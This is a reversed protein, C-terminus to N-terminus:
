ALSMPPQDDPADSSQAQDDPGDRPPPRMPRKGSGEDLVYGHDTKLHHHPSCLRDLKKVQTRHSQAWPVRHDTELYGDASCGAVCCERDRWQLVTQQLAKPSRGLHVALSVDEGRSVVAAVFADGAIMERARRVPIPGVGAVECTEGPLTHGRTLASHDVRVIVKADRDRHRQDELAGDAAADGVADSTGRRAAPRVPDGSVAAVLADVMLAENPVEKGHRNADRALRRFWPRLGAMLRAGDDATTSLQATFAGLHGRHHRFHRRRRVEAYREDADTRAAAELRDAERALEALSRRSAAMALLQAEAGADALAARGVHGAQALSLAGIRLAAATAPLRDAAAAASLDDDARRVSTGSRRALWHAPTRDGEMRWADSHAVRQAALVRCAGALRELEAFADVLREAQDVSLSSPDLGTAWRRALRIVREVREFM